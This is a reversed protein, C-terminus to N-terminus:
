EFALRSYVAFMEPGYPVGYLKGPVDQIMRVGGIEPRHRWYLVKGGRREHEGVAEVLWKSVAAGETPQYYDPANNKGEQKLGGTTITFYPMDQRGSVHGPHGDHADPDFEVVREFRAEFQKTAGELDM